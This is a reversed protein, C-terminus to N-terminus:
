NEPRRKLKGSVTCTTAIPKDKYIAPKFRWQKITERSKADLDVGPKLMQCDTATGDLHFTCRLQYTTEKIRTLQSPAFQLDEGKIREPRMPPHGCPIPMSRDMNKEFAELNRQLEAEFVAKDQTAPEAALVPASLLLLSVLGPMHM